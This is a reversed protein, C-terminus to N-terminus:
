AVFKAFGEIMRAECFFNLATKGKQQIEDNSQRKLVVRDCFESSPRDLHECLHYIGLEIFSVNM